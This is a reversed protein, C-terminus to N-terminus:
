KGVNEPTTLAQLVQFSRSPITNTAYNQEQHGEFQLNSHKTNKTKNSTFFFFEVEISM